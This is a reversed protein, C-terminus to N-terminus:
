TRIRDACWSLLGFGVQALVVCAGSPWDAWYSVALGTAVAALGLAFARLHRRGPGAAAVLAPVILSSFVLYLGVLPVSQSVVLAFALYFGLPHALWGPRFVSLLAFAALALALPLLAQWGVWLLDGAMLQALHEAGHPSRSAVGAAACALAVYLLGILAERQRPWRRELLAVLAAGALASVLAALKVFAGGEAHEGGSGAALVVGFAVCQAVALDVFVIGRRLVQLGLPLHTALVLAGALLPPLLWLDALRDALPM